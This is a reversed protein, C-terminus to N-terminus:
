PIVVPDLLKIADSTETILAYSITDFVRFVLLKAVKQYLNKIEETTAQVRTIAKAVALIHGREIDDDSGKNIVVVQYQSILSRDSDAVAIIYADELYKPIHPYFDEYTAQPDIPLLRAGERIERVNTTIKLLAMPEDNDDIIKQLIAEGLYIAEYALIEDSNEELNNRYTRGVNFIIYQDGVIGNYLGEAYIQNDKISFLTKRINTLVRGAKELEEETVIKPRNLFARVKEMKIVPNSEPRDIIRIQPSLKITRDQAFSVLNINCIIFLCILGLKLYKNM